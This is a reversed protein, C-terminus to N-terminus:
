VTWDTASELASRLVPKRPAVALAFLNRWPVPSQSKRIIWDLGQHHRSHSKWFVNRGIHLDRDSIKSSQVLRPSHDVECLTQHFGSNPFHLCRGVWILQPSISFGIALNIWFDYTTTRIHEARVRFIAYAPSMYLVILLM